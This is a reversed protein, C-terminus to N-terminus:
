FDQLVSKVDVWRSWGDCTCICKGKNQINNIINIDVTTSVFKSIRIFDPQQCNQILIIKFATIVIHYYLKGTCKAFMHTKDAM